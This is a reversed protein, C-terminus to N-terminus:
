DATRFRLSLFDLKTQGHWIVILERTLGESGLSVSFPITRQVYGSARTSIEVTQEIPDDETLTKLSIQAIEGFGELVNFAASMIYNGAPLEPLNELVIAGQADIGPECQRVFQGGGDLILRGTRGRLDKPRVLRETRVLAAGDLRSLSGQQPAAAPQRRLRQALAMLTNASVADCDRTSNAGVHKMYTEFAALAKDRSFVSDIFASKQREALASLLDIDNGHESMFQDIADFDEFMGLTKLAAEDNGDDFGAAALGSWRTFLTPVGMAMAEMPPWILHEPVTASDIFVRSTAIRAHLEDTPLVGIVEADACKYSQKDNKGLVIFPYRSLASKVISYQEEFFPHIDIYSIATAALPNSTGARWSQHIREQSVWANITVYDRSLVPDSWPILNKLGPALWLRGGSRSAIEGIAALNTQLLKLNPAGMVRYLLHGQFWSMINAIVPADAPVILIDIFQNILEANEKSVHGSNRFLDIRRLKEVVSAPLTLSSRWDPYLAHTEDHYDKDHRLTSPDGLSIVVEVGADIYLNVEQYRTTPHDYAWLLRINKDM